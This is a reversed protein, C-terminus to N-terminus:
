SRGCRVDIERSETLTQQVASLQTMGSPVETEIADDDVDGASVGALWGLDLPRLDGRLLEDRLPILRAM